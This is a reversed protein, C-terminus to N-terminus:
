TKAEEAWDAFDKAFGFQEVLERPTFGFDVLNNFARNSHMGEDEITKLIIKNLLEIARARSMIVTHSPQSPIRAAAFVMRNEGISKGCIVHDDGKYHTPENYGAESLEEPCAFVEEIRVRLFRPTQIYDGKKM